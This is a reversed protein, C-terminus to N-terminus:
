AYVSTQSVANRESFLHWLVYDLADNCHDNVGDKEPIGNKYTRVTLSKILQKCKKLVFLTRTGSASLIKANLLQTRDEIPPNGKHDFILNFQAQRLVQHNTNNVDISSTNRNRGSADPYILLQRGPYRKKLEAVMSHTNSDRTTLIIEDIIILNKKDKVAVVAAMKGVNFDMGVHLVKDSHDYFDIQNEIGFEPYCAGEGSMPVCCYEQLFQEKSISERAQALADPKGAPSGSEETTVKWSKWYISNGQGREYYEMLASGRRATGSFVVSGNRDALMPQLYVTFVDEKIGQFEDMLLLDLSRGLLAEPNEAGTVTIRSGNILTIIRDQRNIDAVLSPDFLPDFYNTFNNFYLEKSQGITTCVIMIEQM